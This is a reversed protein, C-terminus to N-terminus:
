PTGRPESNEASPGALTRSPINGPSTEPVGRRAGLLDLQEPTVRSQGYHKEIMELSTGTQRCVFLPDAGNALLWSIYAHRTNYFPRIRVQAERLAPVWIRVYFNAQSIPKSRPKPTTFM